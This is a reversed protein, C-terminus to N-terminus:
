RRLLKKSDLGFHKSCGMLPVRGCLASAQSLSRAFVIDATVQIGDVKFKHGYAIPMPITGGATKIKATPAKTGVPFFDTLYADSIVLDDAGTDVLAFFYATNGRPTPLEVDVHYCNGVTKDYFTYTKQTVRRKM